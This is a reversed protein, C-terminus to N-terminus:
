SMIQGAPHKLTKSEAGSAHGWGVLAAVFAPGKRRDRPGGDTVVKPSALPNEGDGNEGERCNGVGEASTAATSALGSKRDDTRGLSQWEM